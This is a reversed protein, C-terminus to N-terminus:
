SMNLYTQLYRKYNLRNVVRANSPTKYSACLHVAAIRHKIQNPKVVTVTFCIVKPWLKGAVHIPFSLNEAAPQAYM